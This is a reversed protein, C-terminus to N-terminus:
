TLPTILHKKPWFSPVMWSCFRGLHFKSVFVLVFGSYKEGLEKMYDDFNESSILKWTGVFRNCMTCAKRPAPGASLPLPWLLEQLCESLRHAWSPNLPRGKFLELGQPLRPQGIPSATGPPVIHVKDLAATVTGLSGQSGESSVAPCSPCTPVPIHWQVWLAALACQLPTDAVCLCTCSCQTGVFGLEM